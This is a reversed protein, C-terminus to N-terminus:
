EDDMTSPEVKWRDSSLLVGHEPREACWAVLMAVMMALFMQLVTSRDAARDHRRWM